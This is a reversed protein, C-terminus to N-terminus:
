NRGPEQGNKRIVIYAPILRVPRYSLKVKKLNELGSDDMINIYKYEKLESCFSRFIFQSLGKVSLDTVEYLICFTDRNLEFGFTFAKIEKNIKVVRGILGLSPYNELLVKLCRLGDELMGQYLPEQNHAKRGCMWQKYSELCGNNYRPSFSLYESKYHRSFYNFSSRQSKFRNGELKSLDTRKCLYDPYKDRCAYGMNKYFALDKIEVNEIRSIDRNKNFNDMIGFAQELVRKDPTKTLPPLYMFCGIKDKLFLCLNERIITWYIDFLGRWIYINAFAYVSLEHNDLSLFGDLLNKDRLKLEKLGM